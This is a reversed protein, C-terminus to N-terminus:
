VQNIIDCWKTRMSFTKVENELKMDVHISTLNLTKLTLPVENIDDFYQLHPEEFFDSFQLWYMEAEQSHGFEASPNYSHAVSPHKQVSSWLHIGKNCHLKSAPSRDDGLGGHGLLYRASPVFIPINWAYLEAFRRSTVTSPYYIVAPHKLVDAATYSKYKDDLYVIKLSKKNKLEKKFMHDLKSRDGVLLLESLTPKYKFNGKNLDVYNVIHVSKLGTYYRLNEYEYRGTVAMTVKARQHLYGTSVLEPLQDNLRQWAGDTCVGLSYRHENLILVSINHRLLQWHNIAPAHTSSVVCNSGKLANGNEFFVQSENVESATTIGNWKCSQLYEPLNSEYVETNQPLVLRKSKSDAKQVALTLNQNLGSLTSLVDDKKEHCYPMWFRKRPLMSLNCGGKIKDASKITIQQGVDYKTQLKNAVSMGPKLSFYELEALSELWRQVHYVDEIEVFGREYIQIYLEEFIDEVSRNLMTKNSIQERKWQDLYSVFANTQMYLQKEASFDAEYNHPNREQDVIPRRLFGTKIGYLSLMTQGIYSRWIDSVRGSVTVPLYMTFFAKLLYITAQANTPAFLDNSLLLAKSSKDMVSINSSNFYFPTGETLRFIADVDPQYDALSQLIGIEHIPTQKEEFVWQDHQRPPTIIHNLPFGRPWAKASPAGLFPYPNFFISNGISKVETVQLDDGKIPPLFTEIWLDPDPSSGDLWFKLMNDDDFDLIIQAGHAIAYLYGINKRGFSNWSLSDAFNSKMNLQETQNLFYMRGKVSTMLTYDTPKGKDGVIVLCWDRLYLMRRVAESPKFITTLVGWKECAELQNQEKRNSQIYGSRFKINRSPFNRFVESTIINGTAGTFTAEVRSSSSRKSEGKQLGVILLFLFYGFIALLFYKWVSLKM